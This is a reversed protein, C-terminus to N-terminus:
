RIDTLHADMPRIRYDLAMRLYAFVGALLGHRFRRGSM